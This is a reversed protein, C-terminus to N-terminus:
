IKVIGMSIAKAVAEVTKKANLKKRAHELIHNVSKETCGMKHAIVNSKLGFAVHQLCEIERQTFQPQVSDNEAERMSQIRLHAFASAYKLITGHELVVKQFEVGTLRSAVSFGAYGYRGGWRLPFAMGSRMGFESTENRIRQAKPRLTTPICPIPFDIGMYCPQFLPGNIIHRISGDYTAYGSENYHEMWERPYSAWAGALSLRGDPKNPKEAFGYMAWDFGFSQVFNNVLTWVEDPTTTQDLLACFDELTHAM